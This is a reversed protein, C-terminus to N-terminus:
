NMHTKIQDKEAIGQYHLFDEILLRKDGQLQLIPGHDETQSIVTGNTTLQKKLYKIIKKHNYIEPIGEVLTYCKRGNRMQKRIHINGQVREKVQGMGVILEDQADHDDMDEIVM